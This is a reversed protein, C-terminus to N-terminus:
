KIWESVGLQFAELPTATPNNKMYILAYYITELELEHELAVDLLESIADMQEEIHIEM